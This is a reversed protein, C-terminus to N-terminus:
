NKSVSAWANDHTLIPRPTNQITNVPIRKAPCLFAPLFKPTLSFPTLCSASISSIYFDISRGSYSGGHSAMQSADVLCYRPLLAPWDLPLLIQFTPM